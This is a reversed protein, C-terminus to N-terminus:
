RQSELYRHIALKAIDLSLFEDRSCQLKLAQPYAELLLNDIYGGGVEMAIITCYSLNLFGLDNKKRTKITELYAM